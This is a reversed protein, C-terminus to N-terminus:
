SRIMSVTSRVDASCRRYRLKRHVCTCVYVKLMFQDGPMRPMADDELGAGEFASELLNFLGVVQTVGLLRRGNSDVRLGARKFAGQLAEEFFIGEGDLTLEGVLSYLVVVSGHRSNRMAYRAVAHITFQIWHAGQVIKLTKLEEFFADALLSSLPHATSITASMTTLPCTEDICGQRRTATRRGLGPLETTASRRRAVKGPRTTLVGDPSVTMDASVTQMVIGRKGINTNM